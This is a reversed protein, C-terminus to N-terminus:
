LGGLLGLLELVLREYQPYHLAASALETVVLILTDRSAPDIVRVRTGELEAIGDPPIVGMLELVEGLDRLQVGLARRHAELILDATAREFLRLPHTPPSVGRRAMHAVLETLNWAFVEEYEPGAEKRALHALEHSLLEEPPPQVRFWVLMRDPWACGLVTDRGPDHEDPDLVSIRDPPPLGGELAWVEYVRRRAGEFWPM